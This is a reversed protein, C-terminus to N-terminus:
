FHLSFTKLPTHLLPPVSVFPNYLIQKCDKFFSWIFSFEAPSVFHSKLHFDTGINEAPRNLMKTIKIICNRM